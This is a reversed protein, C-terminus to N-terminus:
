ARYSAITLALGEAFSVSPTFGLISRSRELSAIWPDPMALDRQFGPM